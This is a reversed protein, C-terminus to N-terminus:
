LQRVGIDVLLHQVRVEIEDRCKRFTERIEQPTGETQAPDELPWHLGRVEPPLLPCREEANGCVTIVYDMASALEESFAKSRHHSIDIGRELMVEVTFPNLERPEMGASFAEVKEKGYARAFGEAMQSRASNGTCVFLIKNVTM